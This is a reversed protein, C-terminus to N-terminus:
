NYVAQRPAFLSNCKLHTNEHSEGHPYYHNTTLFCLGPKHDVPWQGSTEFACSPFPIDGFAAGLGSVTWSVELGGWFSLRAKRRRGKRARTRIWVSLRPIPGSKSTVPRLMESPPMAKAAELSTRTPLGRTM